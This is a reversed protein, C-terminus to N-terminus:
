YAYVRFDLDPFIDNHSELLTIFAPDLANNDLDNYLRMFNAIHEKTRREAYQVVTGTKMIFAWDSSEALLLERAMQNLTRRTLGNHEGGYRRALEHMRKAMQHLHRYIWENSSELWVESYGRYGWSSLSPRCIQNTPYAALYDSPTSLTITKQEFAIKRILFNLWDPGEYWWHGFLEADYPAVVVPPRDMISALYEVQKERNHMFNGAHVAARHLAARRNYPEKPDTEGTIRYYKIGTAIRVGTPDIYPRIYNMALDYGIDRYFDRYAFDGPYGEKSSWVSKSSEIDRGFAAVNTGRCIVPAFVGYKPRPEGFLIGHTDMIFYRIGAEELLHEVGPYYGCEPLWIGKPRRGFWKEHSEAAIRIQARIAPPNPQLTPFFGHTAGSTAIELMGCEQLQRFAKVLNGDWTQVFIRRCAAFRERYMRATGALTPTRRTRYVEKDALEILRDIHRVYREQLLENTMMSVLPPSMSVTLRFPVGDEGLNELVSLLPLYTETLAEYFWNEEMFYDCEPHRVYPLHAHLFLILSGKFEANAVPNM